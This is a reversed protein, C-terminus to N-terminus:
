AGLVELFYAIYEKGLVAFGLSYASHSTIHMSELICSDHAM